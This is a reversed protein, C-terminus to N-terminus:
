NKINEFRIAEKLGQKATIYGGAFSLLSILIVGIILIIDAEHSKIFKIIKSLMINIFTPIAGRMLKAINEVATQKAL